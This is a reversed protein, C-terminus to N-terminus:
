NPILIFKPWRVGANLKNISMVNITFDGIELVLDEETQRKLSIAKLATDDLNTNLYKTSAVIIQYSGEEAQSNPNYNNNTFNGVELTNIKTGQGM